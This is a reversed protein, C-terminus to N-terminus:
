RLSQDLTTRIPHGKGRERRRLMDGAARQVAEWPSRAWASGTHSRLSHGFGSLFFIARWGRGNHRLLELDYEQCAMGAVVDGIGRWTDFCRHLLQLEPSRPELSLLGLASRLRARSDM